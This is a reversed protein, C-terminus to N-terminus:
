PLYTRLVCVSIKVIRRPMRLYYNKLFVGVNLTQVEADLVTSDVM